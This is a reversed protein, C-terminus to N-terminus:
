WGVAVGCSLMCCYMCVCVCGFRAKREEIQTLLYSGELHALESPSWFIPMNSLTRPLIDYYPQHTNKKTTTDPPQTLWHNSKTQPTTTNSDPAIDPAQPPGDISWDGRDVVWGGVWGVFGVWLGVKFFSTADRRDTLMFLM